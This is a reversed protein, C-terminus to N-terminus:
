SHYGESFSCCYRQIKEESPLHLANKQKAHVNKLVCSSGRGGSSTGGSMFQAPCSSQQVGAKCTANGHTIIQMTSMSLMLDQFVLLIYRCADRMNQLGVHRGKSTHILCCTWTLKPFTDCLGSDGKRIQPSTKCTILLDELPPMLKVKKLHSNRFIIESIIIRLWQDREEWGWLKNTKTKTNQQQPIFGPDQM